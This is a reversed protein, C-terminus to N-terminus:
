INQLKEIIEVAKELGNESILTSKVRQANSQLSSDYILRHIADSLNKKNTKGLPITGASVGIKELQRGWFMQDGVPYMVPITLIPIGAQLGSSVTGIGGHSILAAAKKFLSEFPASDLILLNDPDPNIYDSKNWGRVLIIREKNNLLINILHRICDDIKPNVMSGFTIIVPPKKGKDIFEEIDPSLSYSDPDNWFGTFVSRHSYEKPKKLLAESIGYIFDTNPSGSVLKINNKAAFRSIPKRMSWVGFNQLFYSAKPFLRWVRFGSLAPNPFEKTPEVAPVAMARIM